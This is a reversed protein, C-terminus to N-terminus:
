LDKITTDAYEMHRRDVGQTGATNIMYTWIVSRVVRGPLPYFHSLPDPSPKLRKSGPECAISDHSM